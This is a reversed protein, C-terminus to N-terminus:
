LSITHGASTTASSQLRLMSASMTARTLTISAAMGGIIPAPMTAAWALRSVRSTDDKIPMPIGSPSDVAANHNQTNPAILAIGAHVRRLRTLEMLDPSERTGADSGARLSPIGGPTVPHQTAPVM